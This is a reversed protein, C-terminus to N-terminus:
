IPLTNHKREPSRVQKRRLRRLARALVARTQYPKIVVDIFGRRAAVWPNSLERRLEDVKERYLETAGDGAAALEKGHLVKAASEAAMVAVEAQPYALNLDTRLHKSGMAGYAGGYAKRLILTIMPTTAECYAAGFKAGHRIIGGFEQHTGPLYGPCDVLTLLPINFADCFRIFRAGKVSSDIDLSGALHKPQSAVIGVSHGDIRGFGVVLNRAWGAQVEFFSEPDVIKDILRVVDYTRRPDDPIIEGIEPVDREIDPDAAARPAQERFNSPLYSLLRRIDAICAAEDAAKFHAIGTRTFHVDAGGLGERTVEENTAQRIVDPGTVFMYSTGEVVFLFDCLSPTYVAGGACPGLVAALQPVIGSAQVIRWGIEVYGGLSSIGEQIRAGSGDNLSVVPVGGELALDLVKCIKRAGAESVSGGVVTSDQGYLYVDRGDVTGHGTVIGDGPVRLRDLGFDRCTHTILADFETFSGPDLLLDIRERVTLKGAAHQKAVREEGGGARGATVLDDLEQFRSSPSQAESM